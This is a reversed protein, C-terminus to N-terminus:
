FHDLVPRNCCFIPSPKECFNSTRSWFFRFTNQKLRSNDWNLEFSVSKLDLKEIFFFFSVHLRVWDNKLYYFMHFRSKLFNRQEYQTTGIYKKVQEDQKVMYKSIHNFPVAIAQYEKFAGILTEYSKIELEKNYDESHISIEEVSNKFVSEARDDFLPEVRTAIFLKPDKGSAKAELGLTFGLFLVDRLDAVTSEAFDKAKFTIREGIETTITESNRTLQTLIGHGEYLLEPTKNTQSSTPQLDQSQTQGIYKKVQEDQKVMYKSIHNFPVAIAQYEKFAGILTEYSKMELEKNYDESHISIEEVSNKFVSEARDDFLPEVRTAIFLKPDKGSAKAELGLTFGLFLVDRLDAVTSEAFDKAKFTIREGIETTITGSNRTLQTLIGHGEFLQNAFLTFLVLWVALMATQPRMAQFKPVRGKIQLESFVADLTEEDTLESYTGFESVVAEAELTEMWQIALKRAESVESQEKPHGSKRSLGPNGSTDVQKPRFAEVLNQSEEMEKKRKELFAIEELKMQQEKELRVLEMLDPFFEGVHSLYDFDMPFSGRVSVYLGFMNFATKNGEMCCKFEQLHRDKAEEPPTNPYVLKVYQHFFNHATTCGGRRLLWASLNVCVKYM